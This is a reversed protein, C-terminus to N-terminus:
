PILATHRGVDVQSRFRGKGEKGMPVLDAVLETGPAPTPGPFLEQQVDSARIESAEGEPDVAADERREVPSTAGRDLEAPQPRASPQVLDM